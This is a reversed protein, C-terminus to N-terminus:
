LKAARPASDSRTRKENGSRCPNGQKGALSCRDGRIIFIQKAVRNMKKVLKSIVTRQATWCNNSLPKPLSRLYYRARQSRQWTVRSGSCPSRRTGIVFKLVKEPDVPDLFVRILFPVVSGRSYTEISSNRSTFLWISKTRVLTTHLELVFRLDLSTNRVFYTIIIINMWVALPQMILTQSPM